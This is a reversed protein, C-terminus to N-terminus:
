AGVLMPHALYSIRQHIERGDWSVVSRDVKDTRGLHEEAIGAPRREHLEVQEAREIFRRARRGPTPLDPLGAADLWAATVIEDFQRRLASPSDFVEAVFPQGAIGILVGIQGDHRPFTGRALRGSADLHNVLSKTENVTGMTREDVRRWVEGQVDGDVQKTANAVYPTARRGRSHQRQAGSWRGAEVCAVEVAVRQHVGILIPKVAMRHQWGGEFLQGEMVLVPQDGPNGVVLSGVQPGGEHEAVELHRANMSFRGKGGQTGWIPFVTM